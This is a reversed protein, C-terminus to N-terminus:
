RWKWNLVQIFPFQQSSEYNKLQKIVEEPNNLQNKPIIITKGQSSTIFFYKGTETITKINNIDFVSHGKNSDVEIRTEDLIIKMPYPLYGNFISEIRKRYMRKYFWSSWWPYVVLFLISSGLFFYSYLRYDEDFFLIFACLLSLGIIRYKEKIRLKKISEDTSAQYLEFDLFDEENLTYNLEIM